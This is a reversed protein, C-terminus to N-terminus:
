CLFPSLLIIGRVTNDIIDTNEIYDIKGEMCNKKETMCTSLSLIKILKLEM